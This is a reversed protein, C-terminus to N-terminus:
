ELVCDRRTTQSSEPTYQHFEIRIGNPDSTWAQWSGDGGLQKDTVDIGNNRLTALLGDIDDTQLCIHKFQSSEGSPTEKEEFFELFSGNSLGLYFGCEKGGRIFSFHKTLGLIGCYFSETRELDNTTICVHALGTIM